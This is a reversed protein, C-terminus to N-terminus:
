TKRTLSSQWARRIWAPRASHGGRHLCLEIAGRGCRYSFACSLGEGPDGIDTRSPGSGVCAGQTLWVDISRAVDGQAYHQGIPRGEYPVIRDAMGHVHQMTPMASPCRAPLPEWFAGAIPAFGAFREGMQCALNWVMSGGM